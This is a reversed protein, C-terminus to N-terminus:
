NFIQTPKCVSFQPLIKKKKVQSSALVNM